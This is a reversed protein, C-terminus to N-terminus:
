VSSNALALSVNFTITEGVGPDTLTGSKVLVFGVQNCGAASTTDSRQATATNQFVSWGVDGALGNVGPTLQVSLLKVWTDHLALVYSGSSVWTVPTGASGTLGNVTISSGVGGHPGTINIQGETFFLENQLTAIDRKVARGAM